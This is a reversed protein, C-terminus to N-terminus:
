FDTNLVSETETKDLTSTDKDDQESYIGDVLGQLVSETETEDFIHTTEMRMVKRYNISTYDDDSSILM